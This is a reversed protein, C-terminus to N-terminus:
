VAVTKFVSQRPTVVPSTGQYIMDNDYLVHGVIRWMGTESVAQADFAMVHWRQVEYGSEDTFTGCPMLAEIEVGNALFLRKDSGQEWARTADYVSVPRSAPEITAKGLLKMITGTVVETIAM